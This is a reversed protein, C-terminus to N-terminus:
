VTSGHFGEHQQQHRKTQARRLLHLNQAILKAHRVNIGGRGRPCREAGAVRLGFVAEFFQQAIVALGFARHRFREAGLEDAVIIALPEPPMAVHRPLMIRFQRRVQAGNAFGVLRADLLEHLLM